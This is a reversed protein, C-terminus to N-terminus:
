ASGNFTNSHKHICLLINLKLQHASILTAVSRAKQKPRLHFLTRLKLDSKSGFGIKTELRIQM